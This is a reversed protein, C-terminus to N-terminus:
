KKNLDDELERIYDDYMNHFAAYQVWKKGSYPHEGFSSVLVDDYCDTWLKGVEKTYRLANRKDNETDVDAWKRNLEGIRSNFREAATNYADLWGENYRQGLQASSIAKGIENDKNRAYAERGAKTLNGHMDTLEQVGEKTLYTEGNEDPANLYRKRGEETLSGDENQFRRVGWKMGLIGFHAIFDKYGRNKYDFWEKSQM